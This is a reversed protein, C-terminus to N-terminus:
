PEASEEKQVAVLRHFVEEVQGRTMEFDGSTDILFDAFKKKEEQPLQASIKQAAAAASLGDRKM